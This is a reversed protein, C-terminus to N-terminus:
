KWTGIAYWDILYGVSVAQTPRIIKFDGTYTTTPTVGASTTESFLWSAGGSTTPRLTAQLKPIDTFTFATPYNEGIPDSTYENSQWWVTTVDITGSSRGWCEAVGSNWKRYNWIGSIGQEIIFDAVSSSDIKSEDESKLYQMNSNYAALRETESMDSTIKILGM